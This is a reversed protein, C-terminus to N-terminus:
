GSTGPGAQERIYEFDLNNFYSTINKFIPHFGYPGNVMEDLADEKSWGCVIVRYVACMMGTRDSGHLCHVFVPQNNPDTSIKLFRVIQDKEPNLPNFIIHEYGVQVDGIEDRDSHLSRLNIITKISMKKLQRIGEATPQAGRYLQDTVKYFNDLGPIELPEASIKVPPSSPNNNSRFQLFLPVTLTLIIISVLTTIKVKTSKSM